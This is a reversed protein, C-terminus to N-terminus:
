CSGCVRSMGRGEGRRVKLADAYICFRDTYPLQQLAGWIEYVLGPPLPLPSTPACPPRRPPSRFPAALPLLLQRQRHNGVAGDAACGRQGPHAVHRAAREADAGGAGAAPTLMCAHHPLRPQAAKLRPQAPLGAPGGKAWGGRGARGRAQEHTAKSIPHVAGNSALIAALSRVMKTLVAPLAAASPAPLRSARPHLWRMCMSATGAQRRWCALWAAAWGGGDERLGEDWGRGVWRRHRPVPAPGGGGAAGAPAAAAAGVARRPPLRRPQLGGRVGAGAGAWDARRRLAPLSLFASTSHLRPLQAPRKCRCGLVAAAVWPLALRLVWPECLARGVAPFVAFDSLGLARLWRM